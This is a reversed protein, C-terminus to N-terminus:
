MRATISISLYNILAHIIMPTWITGSQEYAWCLALSPPVYQLLYLMLSWSFGDIYFFQWLHYIAFAIASLAYAWFRSKQRVTGFLAGRFMAEEVIPALLVGVVFMQNPNMAVSDLVAETNPNFLNGNVLAILLAVLLQMFYYGVYGLVLTKLFGFFNDFIDSFSKKLFRFMTILIILFTIVYVYLTMETSDVPADFLRDCLYPVLLQLGVGHVFIMLIGIVRESKLMPFKFPHKEKKM